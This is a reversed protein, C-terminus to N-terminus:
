GKLFKFKKVTVRVTDGPQVEDPPVLSLVVAGGDKLKGQTAVIFKGPSDSPYLSFSGLHTNSGDQEQFDVQFTLPYNKPNQVGTVEIQVFKYAEQATGPEAHQTVSRRAFDLTYLKEGKMSGNNEARNASDLVRANCSTWVMLIFCVWSCPRRM